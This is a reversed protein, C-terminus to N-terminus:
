SPLSIVAIPTTTPKTTGGAPEVTLGVKDGHALGSALVPATSGNRVAALLGASTASGDPKMIWLQYVKSSPLGPMGASTFVFEHLRSAVVVTAQGGVSTRVSVLRAGPANLVAAVQQQQTRATGLQSRSMALFVSLVVVAVLCAAALPLALRRVWPERSWGAGREPPRAHLPQAPPLQRTRAAATLVREKLQAPPVAAVAVAFKTATEQLGRVENDCAPCRALHHEFREREAAGIADLAYVGTLAHMNERLSMRM